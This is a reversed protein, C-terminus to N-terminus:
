IGVKFGCYELIWFLSWAKEFDKTIKGESDCRANESTDLVFKRGKQDVRMPGFALIQENPLASLAAAFKEGNQADDSNWFNEREDLLGLISYHVFVSLLEVFDQERAAVNIGSIFLSRLTKILVHGNSGGVVVMRSIKGQQVRSKWGDIMSFTLTVVDVGKESKLARRLRIDNEFTSSKKDGANLHADRGDTYVYGALRLPVASPKKGSADAKAKSEIWLHFDPKTYIGLSELPVQEHPTPDIFLSDTGKIGSVKYMWTGRRLVKEVSYSDKSTALTKENHAWQAPIQPPLGL